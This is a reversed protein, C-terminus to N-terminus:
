SAYCVRPVYVMIKNSNFDSQSGSVIVDVYRWSKEELLFPNLLSDWWDAFQTISEMTGGDAGSALDRQVLRTRAIEPETDVWISYSAVARLTKRSAGMGEIILAKNPDVIICGSRNEKIWSTPRYTVINKNLWPNIIGDLMEGDWNVPDANWCVDDTHVINANIIDAFKDALTTKGSGAVGDILLIPKPAINRIKMVLNALTEETWSTIDLLPLATISL